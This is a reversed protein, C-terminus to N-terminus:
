ELLEELEIPKGFNYQIGGRDTIPEGTMIEGVAQLVEGFNKRVILFDRGGSKGVCINLWM